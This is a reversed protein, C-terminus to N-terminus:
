YRQTHLCEAQVRRDGGAYEQRGESVHQTEQEQEPEGRQQDVLQRLRRRREQGGAPRTSRKRSAGSVPSNKGASPSSRSTTPTAYRNVRWTTARSIVPEFGTTWGLDDKEAEPKEM